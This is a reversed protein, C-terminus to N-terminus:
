VVYGELISGVVTFLWLSPIVEVGLEHSWIAKCCGVVMVVGAGGELFDGSCWVWWNVSFLSFVVVVGLTWCTSVDKFERTFDKLSSVVEEEFWMNSELIWILNWRHPRRDEHAQM